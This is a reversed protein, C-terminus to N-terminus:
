KFLKLPVTTFWKSDMTINFRFTHTHTPTDQCQTALVTWKCEKEAVACQTAWSSSSSWLLLLPFRWHWWSTLLITEVKWHSQPHTTNVLTQCCGLARNRVATTCLSSKLLIWRLYVPYYFVANYFASSCFQIDSVARLVPFIFIALYITFKGALRQIGKGRM